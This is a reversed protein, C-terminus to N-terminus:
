LDTVRARTFSVVGAEGLIEQRGFAACGAALARAREHPPARAMRTLGPRCERGCSAIEACGAALIQPLHEPAVSGAAELLKVADALDVPGPTADAQGAARGGASV